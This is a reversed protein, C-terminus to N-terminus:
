QFQSYLLHPIHEQKMKWAEKLAISQDRLKKQLCWHDAVNIHVGYEICPSTKGFSGCRSVRFRRLYTYEKEEM